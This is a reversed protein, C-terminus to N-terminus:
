DVEVNYKDGDDCSDLDSDKNIDNFRYFLVSRTMCLKRFKLFKWSRGKTPLLISMEIKWMITAYITMCRNYDKMNTKDFRQLGDIFEDLGRMDEWVPEPKGMPQLSKM